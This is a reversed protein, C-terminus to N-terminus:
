AMGAKPCNLAESVDFPSPLFSSFYLGAEIAICHSQEAVKKGKKWRQSQHVSYRFIALCHRLSMKSEKVSQPFIAEM